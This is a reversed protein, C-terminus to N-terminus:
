RRRKPPSPPSSFRVAPDIHVRSRDVADNLQRRAQHRRRGAATDIRRLRHEAEHVGPELVVMERRAQQVVALALLHGHQDLDRARRRTRQKAEIGADVGCRGAVDSVPGLWGEAAGHAPTPQQATAGGIGLRADGNEGMDGPPKRVRRDRVARHVHQEVGVLM